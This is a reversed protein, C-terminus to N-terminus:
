QTLTDAHACEQEHPGWLLIVPHKDVLTSCLLKLRDTSPGTIELEAWGSTVLGWKARSLQKTQALIYSKVRWNNQLIWFGSDVLLPMSSKSTEALEHSNLRWVWMEHEVRALCTEQWQQTFRAWTEPKLPRTSEWCQLRWSKEFTLCFVSFWYSLRASNMDIIRNKQTQKKLVYM